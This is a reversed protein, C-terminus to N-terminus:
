DRHNQRDEIAIFRRWQLLPMRGLPNEFPKAVLMTKGAAVRDHFIM